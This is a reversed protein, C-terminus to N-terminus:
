CAKIKEELAKVIESDVNWSFKRAFFNTSCLLQNLDELRYVYPEGREWDIERKIAGYDGNMRKDFLRERYDSSMLLTQVFMEDATITQKFTEKILEEQGIVYRAFDHTISFWNAGKQYVLGSKKCRHVMFQLLLFLENIIKEPLTRNRKNILWYKDARKKYKASLTPADIHLFQKKNCKDFFDHIENQSKIPLDVGSLLHYYDHETKLAEKLLKLECDIQSYDGWTVSIREGLITLDSIEVNKELNLKEINPVKSDIHLYIDNREDDIMRLLAELVEFENHAIILYAHKGM